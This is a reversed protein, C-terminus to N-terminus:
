YQFNYSCNFFVRYYSVKIPIEFKTSNWGYIQREDEFQDIYHQAPTPKITLRKQWYFELNDQDGGNEDVLFRKYKQYCRCYKSLCISCYPKKQAANVTFLLSVKNQENRNQRVAALFLDTELITM